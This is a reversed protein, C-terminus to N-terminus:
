RTRLAEHKRSSIQDGKNVHVIEVVKHTKQGLAVMYTRYPSKRRDRNEYGNCLGRSNSESQVGSATDSGVIGDEVFDGSRQDQDHINKFDKALLGLLQNRLIKSVASVAYRQM